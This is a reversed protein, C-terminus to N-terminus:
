HDFLEYLRSESRESLSPIRGCARCQRREINRKLIDAPTLQVVDDNVCGWPGRILVDRQRDTCEQQRM